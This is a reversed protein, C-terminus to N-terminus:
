GSPINILLERYGRYPTSGGLTKVTFLDSLRWHRWNCM